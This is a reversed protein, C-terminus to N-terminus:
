LDSEFNLFENKTEQYSGRPFKISIDNCLCLETSTVSQVHRLNVIYAAGIRIFGGYKSFRTLLESVTM